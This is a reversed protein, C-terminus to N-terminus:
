TCGRWLLSMMPAQPSNAWTPFVYTLTYPHSCLTPQAVVNKYHSPYASLMLSASAFVCIVQSTAAFTASLAICCAWCFQMITSTTSCEMWVIQGYRAVCNSNYTSWAGRSRSNLTLYVWKPCLVCMYLPPFGVMDIEQQRLSAEYEEIDQLVKLAVNLAGQLASNGQLAHQVCIDVPLSLVDVKLELEDRLKLM